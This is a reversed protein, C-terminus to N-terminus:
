RLGEMTLARQVTKRSVNIRRATASVNGMEMQWVAIIQRRKAEDANLIRGRGGTMPAMSGVNAEQVRNDRLSELAIAELLADASLKENGLLLARLLIMELQRVNGPWDYRLLQRCINPALVHTRSPRGGTVGSNRHLFYDALLLIDFPRERLPPVRIIGGALRFYLDPRISALADGSHSSACVQLRADLRGGISVPLDSGLPYFQGEEFAQLLQAQVELPFDPLDDLFLTGSCEYASRLLGQRNSRADTFAGKVHGFLQSSVTGTSINDASIKYFTRLKKGQGSHITRAIMGKGTGTEGVIIVPIRSTAVAACRDRALIIDSSYGIINQGHMTSLFNPPGKCCDDLYRISPADLWATGETLLCDIDSRHTTSRLWEGENQGIFDSACNAIYQRWKNSPLAAAEIIASQIKDYRQIALSIQGLDGNYAEIGNM